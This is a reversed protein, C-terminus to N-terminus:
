EDVGGCFSGFLYIYYNNSQSALGSSIVQMSINYADSCIQQYAQGNYTNDHWTGTATKNCIHNRIQFDSQKICENDM